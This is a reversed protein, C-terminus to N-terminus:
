AEWADLVRGSGLFVSVKRPLAKAADGKFTGRVFFDAAAAGPWNAPRADEFVVVDRFGQKEAYSKVRAPTAAADVSGNTEVAVFYTRGPVALISEGALQRPGEDAAARPPVLAPSVPAGLPNFFWGAHHGYLLLGVGGVLGAGIAVTRWDTM